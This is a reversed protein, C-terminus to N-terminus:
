LASAVGNGESRLAGVMALALWFCRSEFVAIVKNNEGGPNVRLYGEKGSVIGLSPAAVAVQRGAGDGVRRERRGATIPHATRTEGPSSRPKAM